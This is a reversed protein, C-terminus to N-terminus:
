AMLTLKILINMQLVCGLVCQIQLIVASYVGSIKLNKLHLFLDVM